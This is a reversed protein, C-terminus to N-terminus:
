LYKGITISLGIGNFWKPMQVSEEERFVKDGNLQQFVPIVVSPNIYYKDQKVKKLVGVSATAGFGLARAEKTKFNTNDYTIRYRQSFTHYYSYDAGVTLALNNNLLHEYVLGLSLDVNNYHYKDTHFVPQIGTPHNFDITRSPVNASWPSTRNIKDIGLRYYGAGARLKLQGVVPLLYYAKLGYSLGWLKMPDTYTRDGFRSIYDAHKDYRSFLSLEISSRNQGLSAICVFSLSLFIFLKRM